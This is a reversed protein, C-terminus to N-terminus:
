HRFHRTGTFVMAMGHEDAAAVVEDDNRSGGPQVVATVGAAALVDLGDRFPFFADSAAVAGKARDGAKLVAREAAGVRSQDGAGIGVARLGSVIVIANSKTHAAIPWAFRLSELAEDSPALKSAVSWEEGEFTDPAQALMGGSVQRYVRGRGPAPASLVRLAPKAGLVEIAQPLVSSAIVVEVFRGAVARATAPDLVGNIGIVGGFAALPDGEWAAEFAEALDPARAAGCPNTHKVVVVSGAGLENCLSWAAEADLYNNYSMEKGQHFVAEAWWPDAGEERYLVAEQHPNEGYRLSGVRRLPLVLDDGLWGSIAADYSATEFFAEAALRRRLGADPGGSEVATAVEDYRAPSVVVTVRGHNKAAARIMAPGGVDIMEILEDDGAGSALTERFPYLNCVVLDFREIGNAALEDDDSPGRALIGGHIRPHLTKVRGGLMEPFGTVDEVRTVAVGAEELVSATGGSSVIDVGAAALRRAFPVLGTKDHVSVLAKM